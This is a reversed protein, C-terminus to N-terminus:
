KAPATGFCVGDAASPSSRGDKRQSRLEGIWQGKDLLSQRAARLFDPDRYALDTIRQGAAEAANWGYLRQAGQNWLQVREELDRVIIAERPLDVLEALEGIQEQREDALKALQRCREESDKLRRELRHGRLVTELIAPFDRREASSTVYAFPEALM